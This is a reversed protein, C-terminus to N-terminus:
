CGGGGVWGRRKGLALELYGRLGMGRGRGLIVDVIVGGGGSGVRGGVNVMNCM